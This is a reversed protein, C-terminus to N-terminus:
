HGKSALATDFSWIKKFYAAAEFSGPNNAHILIKWHIGTGVWSRLSQRRFQVSRQVIDNNMDRIGHHSMTASWLWQQTKSM